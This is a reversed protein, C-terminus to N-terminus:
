LGVVGVSEFEGVEALVGSQLVHLTPGPASKSGGLASLKARPPPVVGHM